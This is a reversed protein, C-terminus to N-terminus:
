PGTEGDSVGTPGHPVGLRSEPRSVSRSVDASLPKARAPAYREMLRVGSEVEAQMREVFKEDRLRTHLHQKIAERVEQAVSGHNFRALTFLDDALDVPVRVSLARTTDTQTV